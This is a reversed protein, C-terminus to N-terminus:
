RRVVAPAFVDPGQPVRPTIQLWGADMHEWIVQFPAKGPQWKEMIFVGHTPLLTFVVQRPDAPNQLAAARSFAAKIGQAQAQTGCTVPYAFYPPPMPVYEVHRPDYAAVGRHGHLKSRVVPVVAGTDWTVHPLLADMDWMEFGESSPPDNRLGEVHRALVGNGDPQVGCIVSLDDDTVNGKDVPRASGTVTAILADLGPEWTAFCGESYQSAIADQLAPVSVLDAIRVMDTFFNRRGLELSANRMGVPGLLGAWTVRDITPPVVQAKGIENASVATAVRHVVDDYFGAGRCDMRVVAGVLDFHHAYEPAEEGVLLLIRLCLAQAQMIREAALIPGGRRGQEVLTAWAAPAMGPFAFAAPDPPEVALDRELRGLLDAWEGPRAQILTWVTPLHKLGFKRRAQFFPADRWRQPEGFAATTFIVDTSDDPASQVDHGLREFSRLLAAAADSLFPTIPGPLFAVHLQRLWSHGQDAAVPWATILPSRDIM